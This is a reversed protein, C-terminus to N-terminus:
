RVFIELASAEAIRRLSADADPLEVGDEGEAFLPGGVDDDYLSGDEHIARYDDRTLDKGHLKALHFWTWCKLTDNSQRDRILERMAGIDGAEAALELWATAADLYGMHDAVRAVMAPDAHVQPNHLEFFRPDGYRDAMLLLADAQRLEAAAKLHFAANQEAEKRRRYDDAWEKEVGEMRQGSQQKEHWFRGDNLGSGDFSDSGDALLLAKCLHARGDARQIALDLASIVDESRLDLYRDDDRQQERRDEEDLDEHSDYEFVSESNPKDNQTALDWDYLETQGDLLLKLAVDLPLVRVGSKEIAAAISQAVEALAASTYGFAAMRRSVALADLGQHQALSPPMSCLIGQSLMAANSRYGLAAAIAEHIHSRKVDMKVASRLETQIKHALTKANM